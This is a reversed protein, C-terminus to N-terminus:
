NKTAKKAEPFDGSKIRLVFAKLATSDGESPIDKGKVWCRRVRFDIDNDMSTMATKHAGSKYFKAMQEREHWLQLHKQEFILLVGHVYKDQREWLINETYTEM